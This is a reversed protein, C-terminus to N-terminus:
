AACGKVNKKLTRSKTKSTGIFVMKARIVNKGAKLQSPTIRVKYRGAGDAVQVTRLKKRNLSFTV